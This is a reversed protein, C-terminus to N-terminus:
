FILSNDSSFDDILIIEIDKINQNQISSLSHILYKGGNYIPIIISLQPSKKLPYKIKNILNTKESIKIFSNYKKIMEFSLYITKSRQFIEGEDFQKKNSYYNYIFSFFFFIILIISIFYKYYDIIKYKNINKYNIIFNVENNQYFIKKKM